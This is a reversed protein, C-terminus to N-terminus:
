ANEQQSFAAQIIIIQYNVAAEEQLRSHIHAERAPCSVSESRISLRM